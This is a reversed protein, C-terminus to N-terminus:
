APNPVESHLVLYSRWAFPWRTNPERDSGFGGASNVSHVLCSGVVRRDLETLIRHVTLALLRADAPTAGFSRVDIRQVDLRQTSAFGHGGSPSVEVADRPMSEAESDPMEDGFVRGSAVGEAALLDVVAEIVDPYEEAVM